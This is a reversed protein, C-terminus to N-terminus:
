AGPSEQSEEWFGVRKGGGLAAVVYVAEPTKVKFKEGPPLPYGEQTTVKENTGVFLTVESLNRLEARCRNPNPALVLEPKSTVMKQGYSTAM